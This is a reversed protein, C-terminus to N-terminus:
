LMKLIEEEIRREYKQFIRNPKKRGKNIYKEIDLNIYRAKKIMPSYSNNSEYIENIVEVKKILKEEETGILTLVYGMINNYENGLVGENIYNRKMNRTDNEPMHFFMHFLSNNKMSYYKLSKNTDFIIIEPIYHLTYRGDDLLNIKFYFPNSSITSNYRGIKWYEKGLYQWIHRIIGIDTKIFNITNLYDVIDKYKKLSLIKEMIEIDYNYKNGTEIILKYVDHTIKLLQDHMNSYPLIKRFKIFYEIKLISNIFKDTKLDEKRDVRYSNKYDGVVLAYTPYKLYIYKNNNLYEREIFGLEELEKLINSTYIKLTSDKVPREENFIKILETFQSQMCLPGCKSILELYKGYGKKIVTEYRKLTSKAINKPINYKKENLKKVIDM